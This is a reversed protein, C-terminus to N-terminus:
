RYSSRRIRSIAEFKVTIKRASIVSIIHSFELSCERAIWRDKRRSEYGAEESLPRLLRQPLKLALKSEVCRSEKTWHRSVREASVASDCVVIM